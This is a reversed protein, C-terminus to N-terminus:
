KHGRWGYSCSHVNEDSHFHIFLLDCEGFQLVVTVTFQKCVDLM